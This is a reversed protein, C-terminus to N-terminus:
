GTNDVDLQERRRALQGDDMSVIALLQPIRITSMTLFHRDVTIQIQPQGMLLDTSVDTAGPVKKVIDVIQDAYKQLKGPDDGYLKVALESKVGSVAENVNDEIYQSFQTDIVPFKRSAASWPMACIM